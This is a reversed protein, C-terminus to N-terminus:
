AVSWVEEQIEAITMANLSSSRQLIKAKLFSEDDKNLLQPRGVKGTERNESIAVLARQLAGRSIGDEQAARVQSIGHEQHLWIARREPSIISRYQNSAKARVITKEAADGRSSMTSLHVSIKVAEQMIENPPTKDDILSQTSIHKL